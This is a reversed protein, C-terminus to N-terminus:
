SAEAAGGLVREDSVSADSAPRDDNVDNFTMLPGVEFLNSNICITYWKTASILGRRHTGQVSEVSGGRMM